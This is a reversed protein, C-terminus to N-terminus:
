QKHGTWRHDIASSKETANLSATWLNAALAVGAAVFALAKNPVKKFTEAGAKKAKVANVISGGTYILSGAVAGQGIGKATGQIYAGTTAFFKKISAIGGKVTKILGKKQTKNNSIEVKDEQVVNTAPIAQQVQVKAPELPQSNVPATYPVKQLSNFIESM